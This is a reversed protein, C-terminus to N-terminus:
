VDVMDKLKHAACNVDATAAQFLPNSTCYRSAELCQWAVGKAPILSHDWCELAEQFDQEILAVLECCRVGPTVGKYNFLPRVNCGPEECNASCVDVMDKLKHAACRVVPTVGKYNFLPRVNCGPEECNASRVDVM